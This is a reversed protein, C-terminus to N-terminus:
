HTSIHWIKQARDLYRRITYSDHEYEWGYKKKLIKATEVLLGRKGKQGKERRQEIADYYALFTQRSPRDGLNQVLAM